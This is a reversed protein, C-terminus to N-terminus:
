SLTFMNSNCSSFYFICKFRLSINSSNIIFIKILRCNILYFWIKWLCQFLFSKCMDCGNKTEFHIKIKWTAFFSNKDHRLFTKLHNLMNRSSCDPWNKQTVNKCCAELKKNQLISITFFCETPLFNIVLNVM